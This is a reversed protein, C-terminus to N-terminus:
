RRSSQRLCTISMDLLQPSEFRHVGQLPFGSWRAVHMGHETRMHDWVMRIECPWCMVVKWSTTLLNTYIWQRQSSPSSVSGAVLSVSGMDDAHSRYTWYKSVPVLGDTRLRCLRPSCGQLCRSEVYVGRGERSVTEGKWRSAGGPRWNLWLDV